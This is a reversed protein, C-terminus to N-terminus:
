RETEARLAECFAEFAFRKEVTAFEFERGDKEGGTFYVYMWPGADGDELHEERIRATGDRILDLFANWQDDTLETCGIDTTDAETQPWSGGQRTEHFFFGKGADTYFRYRQYYPPYYSADFTYYFDTVRNEDLEAGITMERGASVKEEFERFVDFRVPARAAELVQMIRDMAEFYGDPFANSGGATIVTGDTFGIELSFGEGDLVGEESKRFGNWSSLGCDDIVELLAEAVRDDIPHFPEDDVSMQYRDELMVIEYRPYVVSGPRSLFFSSLRRTKRVTVRLAEDVSLTYATQVTKGQPSTRSVTAGCTGPRLGSFTYVIRYADGPAREREPEAYEIKMTYSVLSPDEIGIAYELGGGDVASLVITNEGEMAKPSLLMLFALFAALVRTM